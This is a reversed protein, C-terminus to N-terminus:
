IRPEEDRQFCREINLRNLLAIIGRANGSHSEAQDRKQTRDASEAEVSRQVKFQEGRLSRLVYTRYMRMHMRVRVCARVCACVYVCCTYVYMYKVSVAAATPPAREPESLQPM